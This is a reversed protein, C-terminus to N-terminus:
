TNLVSMIAIKSKQIYEYIAYIFLTIICYRVLVKCALLKLVGDGDFAARVVNMGFILCPHRIDGTATWIICCESVNMDVQIFAYLLFSMRVRAMDKNARVFQVKNRM